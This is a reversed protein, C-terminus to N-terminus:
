LYHIVFYDRSTNPCRLYSLNKKKKLCFVAYSIKVHSSNLRTSKRDRSVSSKRHDLWVCNCVAVDTSDEVVNNCVAKFNNPHFVDVEIFCGSSIEIGYM